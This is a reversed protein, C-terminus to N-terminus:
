SFKARSTQTENQGELRLEDVRPLEVTFSVSWPQTDAIVRLGSTTTDAGSALSLGPRGM